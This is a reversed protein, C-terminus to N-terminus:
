NLFRQVATFQEGLIEKLLKQVREWNKNKIEKLLESYVLKELIEQRRKQGKVQGKLVERLQGLLKLFVAYEEGFQKELELRLKRALAPSKGSTSIAIILDGREVVSPVIFNCKEPQDVINCLINAANAEKSLRLNLAEDDTAGILLFIDKLYESKYEPGLYSVQGEKVAEELEPLLERAVVFVKAGCALLRKIKRWAVQGGGVVLCNKGKLDLFVPYYRM